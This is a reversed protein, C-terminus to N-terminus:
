GRRRQKRRSQEEYQIIHLEVRVRNKIVGNEDSVKLFARAIAM